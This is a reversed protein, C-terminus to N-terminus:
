GLLGNQIAYLTIEVNNKLNMKELINMRYTSITKVSLALERAMDAASMGSAILLLVQYERDTLAEHPMKNGDRSVYYTLAEAMAASIYRGGGALKRIASLLDTPASTKTLYGSAGARFARVAFQEEPYM